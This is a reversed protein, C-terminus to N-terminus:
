MAGASLSLATSVAVTRPATIRVLWPLSARGRRGLMRDDTEVSHIIDGIVYWRDLLTAVIAARARM